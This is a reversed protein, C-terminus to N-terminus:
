ATALLTFGFSHAFTAPLGHLTVILPPADSPRANRALRQEWSLRWHARQARTLIDETPFTVPSPALTTRSTLGVTESRVVKLWERRIRCRPWDKWVVPALPLPEPTDERTPSSDSLPSELPWFVASVRRPKITASSEQCQARLPCSRCHGIRAAYLVRLSGDRALLSALRPFDSYSTNAALTLILLTAFQFVPYMFFLPGTFVQQAIQGIVTPNSAPNAEIHYSTALLTIGAFLTGLITAMWTLTIAANRTEPKKFAPVGNSIAEVGTMASCGAAFSKLILFISVPETAAIYQFHGIVPQHQLLFHSRAAKDM